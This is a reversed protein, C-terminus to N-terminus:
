GRDVRDNVTAQETQQTRVTLCRDTGARWADRQEDASQAVQQLQNRDGRSPPCGSLWIARVTVHRALLDGCCRLSEEVVHNLNLVPAEVEKRLMSRLRVIV